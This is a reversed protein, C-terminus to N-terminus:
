RAVVQPRAAMLGTALQAACIVITAVIPLEWSGSVSHLLGAILPGPASIMYGVGQAM